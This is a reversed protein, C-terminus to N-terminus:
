NQKKRNNQLIEDLAEKAAQYICYKLCNYM